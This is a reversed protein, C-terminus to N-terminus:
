QQETKRKDFKKGTNYYNARGLKHILIVLPPLLAQDQGLLKTELTKEIVYGLLAIVAAAILAGTYGAVRFGPVIFGIFLFVLASVVFRVILGLM